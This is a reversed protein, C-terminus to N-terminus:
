NSNEIYSKLCEPLIVQYELSSGSLKLMKLEVKDDSSCGSYIIDFKMPLTTNEEFFCNLIDTKDIGSPSKYTYSIEFTKDGTRGKFKYNNYNWFSRENPYSKNQFFYTFIYDNPSAIAPESFHGSFSLSYDHNKKTTFEFTEIQGAFSNIASLLLIAFAGYFIKLHM